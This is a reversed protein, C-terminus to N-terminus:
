ENWAVASGKTRALAARVIPKEEEEQEQEQEKEKEELSM